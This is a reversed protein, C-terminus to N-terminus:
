GGGAALRELAALVEDRRGRSVRLRQGGALEAEYDGHTVHRMKRVRELNVIHSRHVRAFRDAPLRRELDKLRQDCLVEREGAHVLTYDGAGEVWDIEEPPVYFSAAGSSLRLHEGTAAAVSSGSALAGARVTWLGVAVIATYAAANIHLWRLATSLAAAAAQQLPLHGVAALTGFFGANLVFSVAVAGAVHVAAGRAWRPGVPPWRRAAGLILRTLPIWLMAALVSPWVHGSWDLATDGASRAAAYQLTGVGVGVCSWFALM